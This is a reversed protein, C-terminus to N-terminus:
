VNLTAIAVQSAIALTLSQTNEILSLSSATKLSSERGLNFPSSEEGSEQTPKHWISTFLESRRNSPKILSILQSLSSSRFTYNTPTSM